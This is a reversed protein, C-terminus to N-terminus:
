ILLLFGRSSDRALKVSGQPGVAQSFPGYLIGFAMEMTVGTAVGAGFNVIFIKEFFRELRY